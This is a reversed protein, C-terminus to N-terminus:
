YWMLVHEVIRCLSISAISISLNKFKTYLGVINVHRSFLVSQRIKKFLYRLIDPRIEIAYVPSYSSILEDKLSVPIRQM